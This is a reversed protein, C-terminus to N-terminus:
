AQAVQETQAVGLGIVGSNWFLEVLQDTHVSHRVITRYLASVQPRCGVIRDNAARDHPITM